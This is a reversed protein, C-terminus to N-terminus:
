LASPPDFDPPRWLRAESLLPATNQERTHIVTAVDQRTIVTRDQGTEVSCQMCSHLWPSVACVAGRRM